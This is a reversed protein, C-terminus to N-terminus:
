QLDGHLCHAVRM